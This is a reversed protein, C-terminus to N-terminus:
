LVEDLRVRRGERESRLAAELVAVAILGAEGATDPPTGERIARCFQRVVAAGGHRPEGAPLTKLGEHDERWVTSADTWLNAKTGFLRLFSCGSSVYSSTVTALRGNEYEIITAATDELEATTVMRKVSALVSRPRGFLANFADFYHIGLLNLCGGPVNAAKSRWMGERTSAGLGGGHGMHAVGLTVEGIEGARALALVKELAPRLRYEHGVQLLVGHRRCVALAERCEAVTNCLPKTVSIHLGAEAAERINPLHLHNPTGIIVAEPKERAVLDAFREYVPVGPCREAFTRRAEASPDLGGVLRAAPTERLAPLYMGLNIGGLGVLAIRVPNASESM